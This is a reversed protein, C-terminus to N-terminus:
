TSCCEPDTFQVKMIYDQGQKCASCLRSVDTFDYDSPRAMEDHKGSVNALTRLETFVKNM